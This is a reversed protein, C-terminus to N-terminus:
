NMITIASTLAPFMASARVRGNEGIANWTDLLTTAMEWEDETEIIIAVKLANKFRVPGGYAMQVFDPFNVQLEKSCMECLSDTMCSNTYLDCMQKSLLVKGVVRLV